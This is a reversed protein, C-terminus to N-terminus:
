HDLALFAYFHWTYISSNSAGGHSLFGGYRHGDQSDSPVAKPDPPLSLNLQLMAGPVLSQLGSKLFTSDHLNLWQLGNCVM